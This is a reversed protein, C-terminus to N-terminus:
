PGPEGVIRVEPILRVGHTQEVRRQVFEILAEIHAATAKDTNIIFNAHRDSVCAGGIRYGKLGAADILRAAFDGPPNRFVSGCSFMGLPQSAQRRDLLTKIESLSTTKDGPQLELEAAVFWEEGPLGVERYAVTFESRNRRRIRGLRDVTEVSTVVDWTQGGSAGANMALAGGITGPIGVMFEAGTLGLRTCLRAIKACPVGAQARLRAPAIKILGNLAAHVAIVTGRVGGDGVLINTGLGFWTLPEDANLGSLFLCLDDTDAPKYLQAAAGGVRWSNLTRLPANVHLVGRLASKTCAPMM